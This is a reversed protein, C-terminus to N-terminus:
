LSSLPTPPLSFLVEPLYLCPFMQFHTQWSALSGTEFLNSHNDSQWLQGRIEVTASHCTFEVSVCSCVCACACACSCVYMIYLFSSVTRPVRNGLTPRHQRIHSCGKYNIHNVCERRKSFLLFILWTGQGHDGDVFHCLFPVFEANAESLQQRKGSAYMCLSQALPSAQPVNHEFSGDGVWAEQTLIQM